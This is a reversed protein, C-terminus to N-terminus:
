ILHSTLMPKCALAESLTGIHLDPDLIETEECIVANAVKMGLLLIRQLWDLLASLM